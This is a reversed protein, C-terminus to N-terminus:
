FLDIPESVFRVSGDGMAFHVSGDAFLFNAGGSHASAGASADSGSGDFVKVHPGGDNEMTVVSGYDIVISDEAEDDGSQVVTNSTGDTIGFEFSDDADHYNHIALGLQKLNNTM